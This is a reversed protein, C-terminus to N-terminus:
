VDREGEHELTRVNRLKWAHNTSYSPQRVVVHPPATNSLCDLVRSRALEPARLAPLNIFSNQNFLPSALSPPLRLISDM